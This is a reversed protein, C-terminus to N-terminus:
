TRSAVSPRSVEDSVSARCQVLEAQLKAAKHEKGARECKGVRDAYRLCQNFLMCGLHLMLPVHRAKWVCNRQFAGSSSGKTNLNRLKM